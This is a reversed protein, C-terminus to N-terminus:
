GFWGSFISKNLQCAIFYSKGLLVHAVMLWYYSCDFATAKITVFVNGSGNAKNSHLVRLLARLLEVLTEPYSYQTRRSELINMRM